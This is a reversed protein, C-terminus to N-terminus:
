APGGGFFRVLSTHASRERCLYLTKLFAPRCVSTSVSINSGPLEGTTADLGLFWRASLLECM